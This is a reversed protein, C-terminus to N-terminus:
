LRAQLYRQLLKKDHIHKFLADPLRKNTFKKWHRALIRSHEPLITIEVQQPRMKVGLKQASGVSLDCIRNYAYPGRDTLIVHISKGNEVSKVIAISPLVATPHAATLQKEDFIVLSATPRGNFKGGYHSAIGRSHRHKLRYRSEPMYRHRGFSNKVSYPTRSYRVDAKPGLILDGVSCGGLFLLLFIPLM